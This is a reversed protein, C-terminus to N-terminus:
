ATLERYLAETEQSPSIGLGEELATKCAQYQRVISVRDGLAFYARMEIQYVSENYRDQAIAVQCVTLCQDLHNIDLYLRALHELASVYMQGLREREEAAWPADAEVLYPGHVLDVAKQYWEIRKSIDKTKRARTLYSEFAEVDYEYDLTRNFCYYIDDFVIVNKGAARRLRYIEDKFRAKLIQPDSTEPWLVEGIQEKTLPEQAILFYFFLDRVSKTRWDSMALLRGDVSVEARGFSRISLGASPMQISQAHRRLTRRISPLLTTLRQCKELLSSLKRGVQSDRQLGNLWPTAQRLAVLITHDPNKEVELLERTETRANETQEAQEYAAILWITSWHIEFDRGDQLFCTRGEQLLRIAKKPEGKLLYFRGEFLNWLGHEYASQSTRIKKKNASLIQAATKLEGKLLTLFAKAIILYNSIFFGPLEGAVIEAQGYAQLAADFEEVESYLDGLGTLILSEARQNRSKRANELGNEFTECALEYEGTQHYLVALNNLIEAQYYLNREAQRLKLADQYSRKASDIDGVAHHVMGTEMLVTPISSNENLATYLSLSHELSEIAHRSEGLRHLNLGKLRLGEAYHPQLSTNSGAL